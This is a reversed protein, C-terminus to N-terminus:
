RILRLVTEWDNLGNGGITQVIVPKNAVIHRFGNPPLDVFQGANLVQVVGDIQLTTQNDLVLVFAGQTQTHIFFERGRDGTNITTNDGLNAISSGGETSGAWVAIRGTSTIKFKEDAFGPVYTLEGRQIM